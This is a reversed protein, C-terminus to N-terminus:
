NTRVFAPGGFRVTRFTRLRTGPDRWAGVPLGAKRCVAAFMDDADWGFETAVEPLLLARRGDREVIVGDVGPEFADPDVLPATPGLVSLNVHVAPLEDAALPPFRPDDLAASVASAVVAEALSRNPELSGICGRLEGAETLTVFVAGRPQSGRALDLAHELSSVPAGGTAVVLALRALDLLARRADPAVVPCAPTESLPPRSGPQILHRM